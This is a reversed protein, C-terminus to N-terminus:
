QVAILRCENVNLTPLGQERVKDEPCAYIDGAALNQGAVGMTAKESDFYGMAILGGNGQGSGVLTEGPKMFDDAALANGVSATLLAAAM